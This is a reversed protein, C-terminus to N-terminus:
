GSVEVLEDVAAWAAARKGAEIAGVGNQEMTVNVAGQVTEKSTSSSSSLHRCVFHSVHVNPERYCLVGAPLFGFVHDTNNSQRQNLGSVLGGEERRRSFLRFSRGFDERSSWLLRRWM